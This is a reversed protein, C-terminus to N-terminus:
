IIPNDYKDMFQNTEFHFQYKEGKGNDFIYLPGLRIHEEFHPARSDATCWETGSGLECSAGKLETSGKPIKYVTFGDVEGIKFKSYKDSKTEGKTKSPDAAIKDAIQTSIKIFDSIPHQKGYTNIDPSPYQRKHKDFISFYKKYKSIDEAKITGDVVKKILWTAYAGKQTADKISDFVSQEIKGTDVFQTQLQDISAENILETLIFKLKM